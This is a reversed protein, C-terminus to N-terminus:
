FRNSSDWIVSSCVTVELILYSVCVEFDVGGAWWLCCILAYVLCLTLLGLINFFHVQVLSEGCFLPSGKACHESTATMVGDVVVYSTFAFLVTLNSRHCWGTLELVDRVCIFFSLCWILKPLKSCSTLHLVTRKTVWISPLLWLCLTWCICDALDVQFSTKHEKM